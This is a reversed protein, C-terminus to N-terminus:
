RGRKRKRKAPRPADDAPADSSEEEAPAQSAEREERRRLMEERQQAAGPWPTAEGSRWAPGRGGPWRDLLLLGLAVLWFVQIFGGGGAGIPLLYLAGIVIGLIGMFRSLLGTRMAYLSVLVVALGLALNAGFSAEALGSATTETVFTEAEDATGGGMAVFDHAVNILDLQRIIRIAAALIPGAVILGLAVHPLEPRRHRIARFLYYLPGITLVIGVGQLVAAVMFDATERDAVALVDNVESTDGEVAAAIYVIPAIMFLAAGFAAIAAPRAARSEWALQGQEAM